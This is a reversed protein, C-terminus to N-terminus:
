QGWFRFLVAGGSSSSLDLSASQQTQYQLRMHIGNFSNVSKKLGGHINYWRKHPLLCPALPLKQFDFPSAQPHHGMLLPSTVRPLWPRQNTLVPVSALSLHNLVHQIRTGLIIGKKRLRGRRLHVCPLQYWHWSQFKGLHPQQIRNPTIKKQLLPSVLAITPASHQQKTM